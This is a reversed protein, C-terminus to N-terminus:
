KEQEVALSNLETQEEPTFLHWVSAVTNLGLADSPSSEEMDIQSSISPMDEMKNWLSQSLEKSVGEWTEAVEDPRIYNFFFDM